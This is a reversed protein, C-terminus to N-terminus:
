GMRAERKAQRDREERKEREREREERQRETERDRQRKERREERKFERERERSSERLSVTNYPLCNVALGFFSYSELLNEICELIRCISLACEALNHEQKLKISGMM